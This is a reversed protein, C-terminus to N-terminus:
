QCITVTGASWGEAVRTLDVVAVLKEGDLALIQVNESSASSPRLLSYQPNDTGEVSAFEQLAHIAVEEPEIGQPPAQPDLMSFMEQSPLCDAPLPAM